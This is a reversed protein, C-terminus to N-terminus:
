ESEDGRARGASRQNWRRPDVLEPEITVIARTPEDPRQMRWVLQEVAKEGILEPRVDVSAPRPDLAELIPENDCSMVEIDRGPEIGQERLARYVKVTLRDRPVFVGTPRPNMALLQKVVQDTQADGFDERRSPRRSSPNEAIMECTAGYEEVTEVFAEARSRFGMHTPSFYLYALHRHGLGLLYEAALRGIVENDPCVRDGWYGRSSRQSLVWVSPHPSLTKRLEPSPAYGHLLLGDIQGKAVDPPLRGEEGVQGVILNFGHETLSKEVAHFVAATVPARAFMADTGVMLLGITGTTVRKMGAPRPGRRRAPPTYGLQRMARQVAAVTEPAVGPRKNIVRSVTSHSTGAIRAVEVISM